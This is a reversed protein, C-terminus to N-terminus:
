GALVTTAAKPKRVLNIGKKDRHRVIPGGFLKKLNEM